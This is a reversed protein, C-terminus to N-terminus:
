YAEILSCLTVTGLTTNKVARGAKRGNKKQSTINHLRAFTVQVESSGAAEMKM